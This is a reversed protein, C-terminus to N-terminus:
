LYPGYLTRIRIQPAKMYMAGGDGEGYGTNFMENYEYMSMVNEGPLTVQIPSDHILNHSFRM